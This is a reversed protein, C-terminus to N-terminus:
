EWPTIFRVVSQHGNTVTGSREEGLVQSGQSASLTYSKGGYKEELVPLLERHFEFFFKHRPIYRSPSRDSKEQLSVEQLGKLHCSGLPGGGSRELRELHHRQILSDVTRLLGYIIVRSSLLLKIFLEPCAGSLSIKSKAGSEIIMNM